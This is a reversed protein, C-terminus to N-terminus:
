RPYFMRKIELEDELAELAITKEKVLKHAYIENKEARSMMSTVNMRSSHNSKICFRRGVTKKSQVTYDSRLERRRAEQHTEVAPTACAADDTLDMDDLMELAEDVLSEACMDGWFEGRQLAPFEFTPFHLPKKTSSESLSATSKDFSPVTSSTESAM